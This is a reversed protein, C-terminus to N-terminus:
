VTRYNGVTYFKGFVAEPAFGQSATDHEIMFGPPKATSIPNTSGNAMDTTISGDVTERRIVM